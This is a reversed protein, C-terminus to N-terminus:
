DGPARNGKRCFESRGGRVHSSVLPRNTGSFSARGGSRHAAARPGASWGGRRSCVHPPLPWALGACRGPCRGACERGSTLPEAWLAHPSSGPRLSCLSWPSSPPRGTGTGSRDPSASRADEGRQQQAPTM